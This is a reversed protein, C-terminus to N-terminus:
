PSGKYSMCRLPLVQTVYSLGTINKSIPAEHKAFYPLMELDGPHLYLALGQFAYCDTM